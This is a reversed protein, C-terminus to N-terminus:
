KQIIKLINAHDERPIELNSKIEKISTNSRFGIKIGLDQLIKLTNSDYNGCPHSMSIIDQDLISKLHNANKKYEEKQAQIDLDDIKTPHSNSHLGIIHGDSEIEKLHKNSLWLTSKVEKINFEKKNMIKMMLKKYNNPKLVEDRLFRFLKDNFSYFSFDDLYDNPITNEFNPNSAFGSQKFESFFCNYFDDMDEFAVTRFYRFIELYDPDGGFPSSYVFFFAKIAKKKLIPLAVDYQCLLADDFSLCIDTKHLNNNLVKELYVHADNILYYNSLWDLIQEFEEGSIAGQGKPHNEDYFHHFMVAHSFNNPLETM